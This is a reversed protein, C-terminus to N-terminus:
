PFIVGCQLHNIHKPCFISIRLYFKEIQKLNNEKCWDSCKAFGKDYADKSKEPILKSMANNAEIKIIDSSITEAM